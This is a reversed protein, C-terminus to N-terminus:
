SSPGCWAITKQDPKMIVLSSSGEQLPLVAEDFPEELAVSTIGPSLDGLAITTGGLSTCDGEQVAVPYVAGRTEPTRPVYFDVLATTKGDSGTTFTVYADKTGIDSRKTLTFDASRATLETSSPPAGKSSTEEDGGCGAVGIALVTAAILAGPGVVPRM